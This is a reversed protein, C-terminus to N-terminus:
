NAELKEILVANELFQKYSKINHSVYLEYFMNQWSVFECQQWSVYNNM